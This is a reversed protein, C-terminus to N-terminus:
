HARPKAATLLERLLDRRAKGSLVELRRLGTPDVEEFLLRLEEGTPPPTIQPSMDIRLRCGTASVVEERTVGPHVTLCTLGEDPDFRFTGLNSVLFTPNGRRGLTPAGRAARHGLTSVFDVEDVFTRRDHRPVYMFIERELISGDPLGVAGPLRITPRSYDGIVVNNTNGWTDVQAPRMFERWAMRDRSLYSPLYRLAMEAYSFRGLGVALTSAEYGELSLPLGTVRVVSGVPSIGVAAPAHMRRALEYGATPLFAGIGELLVDRDSISRAICVCMMDEPTWSVM